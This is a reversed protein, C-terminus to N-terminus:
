GPGCAEKAHHGGHQPAEEPDPAPRGPITVGIGDFREMDDHRANQASRQEDPEEHQEDADDGPAM